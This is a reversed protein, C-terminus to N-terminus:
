ERQNVSEGCSKCRQANAMAVPLFRIPTARRALYPHFSHLLEFDAISDLVRQEGLINCLVDSAAQWRQTETLLPLNKGSLLAHLGGGPPSLLIFVWEAADLEFHRGAYKKLQVTYNWEKPPKTAYFEWQRLEPAASVINQTIVLLDRNLNPSITFQRKKEVGASVEWTLGPHINRVRDDLQSILAPREIGSILPDSVTVFWAWFEEIQSTDISTM